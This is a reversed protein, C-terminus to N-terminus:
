LGFIRVRQFYLRFAAGHSELFCLELNWLSLMATSAGSLRQL